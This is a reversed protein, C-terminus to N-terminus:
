TSMSLIQKDVNGTHALAQVIHEVVLSVPVLAASGSGEGHHFPTAVAAPAIRHIRIGREIVIPDHRMGEILWDEAAIVSAHHHAYFTPSFRGKLRTIASSLFVFSGGDALLGSFHQFVNLVGLQHMGIENKYTELPLKSLPYRVAEALGGPPCHGVSYIVGDFRSESAMFEAFAKVEREDATDKLVRYTVDAEPQDPARRVSAIVRHGLVSLKRVIESGISGGAGFLLYTKM